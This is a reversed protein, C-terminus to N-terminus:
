GIKLHTATVQSFPLIGTLYYVGHGHLAPLSVNPCRKIFRKVLGAYLTENLTAGIDEMVMYKM